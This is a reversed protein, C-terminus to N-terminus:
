SDKTIDLINHLFHRSSCAYGHKLRLWSAFAELVQFMWLVWAFLFDLFKQKLLFVYHGFKLYLVCNKHNFFDWRSRWSMLIWVLQWSILPLKWKPHSNRKLNVADIRGLQSRTITYKRISPHLLFMSVHWSVFVLQGNQSNHYVCMFTGLLGWCMLMEEAFPILCELQRGILQFNKLLIRALM